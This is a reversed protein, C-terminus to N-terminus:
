PLSVPAPPSWRVLPWRLPDPWARPWTVPQTTQWSCRAARRRYRRLTGAGNMLVGLRASACLRGTPARRARWSLASQLQAQLYAAAGTLAPQESQLVYIPIAAMYDAFRGKDEFRARLPSVALHDALRPVIGGGIYVGGRAGLTLALDGATAGLIALFVDLADRCHRHAPAANAELAHRTIEAASLRTENAAHGADLALTEHIFELGPGSVLREVSVRGFAQTAARWLLLERDNTPAFAVHGGEGALAIFGGIADPVLASVGLGTGAGILASPTDAVPAGGGLKLLEEDPLHPLSWALATFDNLLLLRDLGLAARTAEISFRWHHNTMEVWDGTVATAIGIAGHQVARGISAPLGDLYHRLAAELSAHEACAFVQVHELALGSRSVAFRANTGGVDGLLRPADFSVAATEPTGISM